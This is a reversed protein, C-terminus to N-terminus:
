QIKKTLAIIVSFIVFLYEKLMKFVEYKMREKPLSIVNEYKNKQPLYLIIIISTYILHLM